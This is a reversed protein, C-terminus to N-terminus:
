SKYNKLTGYTQSEGDRHASSIMKHDKKAGELSYSPITRAIRDGVGAVRVNGYDLIGKIAITLIPLTMSPAWGKATLPEFCIAGHTFVYGGSLQPYLIRAFPPDIPFGDPLTLEGM